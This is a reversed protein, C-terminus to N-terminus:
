VIVLEFYWLSKRLWVKLWDNASLDFFPHSNAFMFHIGYGWVGKTKSFTERKIIVLKELSTFHRSLFFLRESIFRKLIKTSRSGPTVINGKCCGHLFLGKTFPRTWFYYATESLASIAAVFLSFIRSRMRTVAITLNLTLLCLLYLM